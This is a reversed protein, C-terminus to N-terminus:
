GATAPAAFQLGLVMIGVAAVWSGTARLAIPRWGGVGRLFALAGGTALTMVAYGAATAGALFLLRDTSAPLGQGNQLGHLLGMVTSLGILVPLPLRAAAALALGTAAVLGIGLIPGFPPAPLLLAAAGGALLALPFAVIVWRARRAGQFAALAALAVWPLLQDLETLPHLAGGYFDGLRTDVLHAHAATPAALAAAVTAAALM